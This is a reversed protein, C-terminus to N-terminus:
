EGIVMVVSLEMRVLSRMKQVRYVCENSMVTPRRALNQRQHM